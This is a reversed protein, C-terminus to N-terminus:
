RDARSRPAADSLRAREALAQRGARVAWDLRQRRAEAAPGSAGASRERLRCAARVLAAIQEDPVHSAPVGGPFASRTPVQERQADPSVTSPASVSHTDM